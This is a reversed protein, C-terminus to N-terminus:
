TRKKSKFNFYMCTQWIKTLENRGKGGDEQAWRDILEFFLLLYLLLLKVQDLYTASLLALPRWVVLGM